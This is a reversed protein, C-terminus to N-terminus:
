LTVKMAIKNYKKSGKQIFYKLKWKATLARFLNNLTWNKM